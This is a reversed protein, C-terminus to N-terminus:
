FNDIYWIITKKLGSIFEEKPEWGLSDKIKSNDISYRFDHGPRDTIHEIQEKYSLLDKRPKIEDLIDCIHNILDINRIENNGGINYVEGSVGKELILRLASCHDNVHLWDRVQEGDGYIPIPLRRLANTIVIPILKEPFQRPGYNNSCNTIIAPLSYTKNYARVIHNSAAKSASYPSNPLYANSEKFPKGYKGLDGFVEDTSIHIFLYKELSAKSSKNIHDRFAKLLNHTGLVNTEIFIDPQYISNDVHSEAAFNIISRIKHENICSKLSEYDCIDGKIFKYNKNSEVETLNDPNSAYTGKDFNIVEEESNKFWENIFNSGIFGSGGTVLITM